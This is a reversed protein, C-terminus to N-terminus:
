PQKMINKAQKYITENSSYYSLRGNIQRKNARPQFVIHIYVEKDNPNGNINSIYRKKSDTHCRRFKSRKSKKVDLDFEM